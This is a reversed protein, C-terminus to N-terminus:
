PIFIRFLNFSQTAPTSNRKNTDEIFIRRSKTLIKGMITLRFAYDFHVTSLSRLNCAESVAYNGYKEKEDEM